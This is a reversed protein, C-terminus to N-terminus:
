LMTLLPYLKKGRSHSVDTNVLHYMYMATARIDVYANFAKNSMRVISIDGEIYQM